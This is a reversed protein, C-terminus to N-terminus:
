LTLEDEGGLLGRQAENRARTYFTFWLVFHVNAAGYAFAGGLIAMTVGGEPSFLLALLYSLAAYALFALINFWALTWIPKKM